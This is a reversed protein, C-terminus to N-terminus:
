HEPQSSQKGIVQRVISRIDPVIEAMRRKVDLVDVDKRRHAFENRLRTFITEEVRKQKPSYSKEACPCIDLILADVRPQRDCCIMLLIHYLHMFEEVPSSSQMAARFFGYFDDRWSSEEEMCRRVEERILEPSRVFRMNVTGGVELTAPACEFVYSNSISGLHKLGDMAVVVPGFRLEERFVIRNIASEVVECALRRGGERSKVSAIHVQWYFRASDAEVEISKVAAESPKYELRPFSFNEGRLDEYVAMLEVVGGYM